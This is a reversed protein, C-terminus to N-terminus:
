AAKVPALAAEEAKDLQSQGAGIPLEALAKRVAEKAAEEDERSAGYIYVRGVIRQCAQQHECERNMPQIAEVAATDMERYAAEKRVNRIAAVAAEWARQKLPAYEARFQIDWALRAMCTTLAREIEQKRTWPGLA